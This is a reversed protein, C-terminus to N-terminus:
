EKVAGQRNWFTMMVLGSWGALRTVTADKMVIYAVSSNPPALRIYWPNAGERMLVALRIFWSFLGFGPRVRKSSNLVALPPVWKGRQNDLCTDSVATSRAM